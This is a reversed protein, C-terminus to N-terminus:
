WDVKVWDEPVIDYDDLHVNTMWKAPAVVIKEPNQNLYAAWWSFSSNSIINHKCLRMLFFDILYDNNEIYIINRNMQGFALKCWWVQDSCVVFLTDEDPFLAMANEFYDQTCFHFCYRNPDEAFYTRAHVAVTKPHNLIESYKQKLEDLIEESPQFLEVIEAKHHKFYKESQFFGMIKMDSYFPISLYPHFPEGYVAKIKRPPSDANIRFFVKEYNYQIGFG